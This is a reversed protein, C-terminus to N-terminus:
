NGCLWRLTPPCRFGASYIATEAPRVADDDVPTYAPLAFTLIIVCCLASIKLM